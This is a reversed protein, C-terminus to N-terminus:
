PRIRVLAQGDWRYITSGASPPLDGADIILDVEGGFEAIIDRIRHLPPHQTRNVSTSTIPRGYHVSLQRCFSHDPIRVGLSQDPGLVATDVWGSKVPIIVTTKGGLPALTTPIAEAPLSIWPRLSEKDAILVSWPGGRGKLQELRRVADPRTADVGLGYLTDTPYIIVGGQELIATAQRVANSDTYPITNM